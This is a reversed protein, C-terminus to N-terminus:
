SNKIVKIVCRHTCAQPLGDIAEVVLNVEPTVSIVHLRWLTGCIVLVIRIVLERCRTGWRGVSRLLKAIVRAEAEALEGNAILKFIICAADWASRLEAVVVSFVLFFALLLGIGGLLLLLTSPFYLM